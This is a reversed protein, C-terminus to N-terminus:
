DFQVCNVYFSAIPSCLLVFFYLFRLENVTDRKGIIGKTEDEPRYPSKVKFDDMSISRKRTVTFRSHEENFHHQLIDTSDNNSNSPATFSSPMSSIEALYLSSDYVGANEAATSGVDLETPQIDTKGKSSDTLMMQNDHLAKRVREEVAAAKQAKDRAVVEKLEAFLKSKMCDLEARRAILTEMKRNCDIVQEKHWALKEAANRREKARAVQEALAQEEQRRREIIQEIIKTKVEKSPPPMYKWGVPIARGVGRRPGLEKDSM